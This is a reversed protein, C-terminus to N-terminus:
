RAKKFCLLYALYTIEVGISFALIEMIDIFCDVRGSGEQALSSSLFISSSTFSVQFTNFMERSALPSFEDRHAASLYWGGKSPLVAQAINQHYGYYMRAM